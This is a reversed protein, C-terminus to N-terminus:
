ILMDNAPLGHSARAAPFGRSFNASRRNALIANKSEQIRTSRARRQAFTGRDSYMQKRTKARSRIPPNEAADRVSALDPPDRVQVPFGFGSHRSSFERRPFIIIAANLFITPM